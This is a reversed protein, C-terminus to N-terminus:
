RSSTARPASSSTAPSGSTSASTPSGAPSSTTPTPSASAGAAPRYPRGRGGLGRLYRSYECLCDEVNRVTLRRGGLWPFGRAALAPEHRAWLALILDAAVRESPLEPLGHIAALARRSGVHAYVAPDNETFAALETYAALDCAVHYAHFPGLASVDRCYRRFHALTVDGLVAALPALEDWWRRIAEVSNRRQDLSGLNVYVTTRYATTYPWGPVARLRELLEAPDFGARVPLLAEATAPRNFHRYAVLNVLLELPDRDRVQPLLWRRLHATTRDLERYVNMFHRERLVPDATWPRPSGAARREWIRQRETVFDWLGSESAV